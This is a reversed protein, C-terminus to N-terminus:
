GEKDIEGGYYSRDGDANGPFGCEAGPYADLMIIGIDKSDFSTPRVKAM